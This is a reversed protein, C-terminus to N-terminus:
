YERRFFIYWIFYRVCFVIVFVHWIIEANYCTHGFYDGLVHGILWVMFGIFLAFLM